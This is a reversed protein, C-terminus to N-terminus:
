MQVLEPQDHFKNLKDLSSTPSLAAYKKMEHLLFLQRTIKPIRGVHCIM